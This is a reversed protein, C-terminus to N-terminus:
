SASPPSLTTLRELRQTIVTAYDDNSLLTGASGESGRRVQVACLARKSSHVGVGATCAEFRARHHVSHLPPGHVTHPSQRRVIREQGRMTPSLTSHIPLGHRSGNGGGIRSGDELALGEPLVTQLRM